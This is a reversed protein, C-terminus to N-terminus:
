TSRQWLPRDPQGASRRHQVLRVRDSRGRPCRRWPRVHIRCCEAGTRLGARRRPPVVANGRRRRRRRGRRQRVHVRSQAPRQRRGARRRPSVVAGGRHRGRPDGRGQRVHGRSHAACPCRGARRPEPIWDLSQCPRRASIGNPGRGDDAGVGSACGDDRGAIHRFRSASNGSEGEEHHKADNHRNGSCDNAFSLAGSTERM